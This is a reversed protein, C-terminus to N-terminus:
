SNWQDATLGADGFVKLGAKIGYQKTSITGEINEHQSVVHFSVYTAQSLMSNYEREVFREPERRFRCSRRTGEETAVGPTGVPEEDDTDEVEDNSDSDANDFHDSDGDNSDGDANYFHNYQNEADVEDADALEEDTEYDEM